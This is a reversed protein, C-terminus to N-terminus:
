EADKTKYFTYIPAHVFVAAAQEQKAIYAFAYTLLESIKEIM